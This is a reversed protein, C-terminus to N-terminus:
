FQFYIFPTFGTPQFLIVLYILLILIVPTYWRDAPLDVLHGWRTASIAHFLILVPLLIIARLSIWHVGENFQAMNFMKEICIWATSFDPSRFFVWAVMVILMTYVWGM